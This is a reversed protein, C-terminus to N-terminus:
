KQYNLRWRFGITRPESPAAVGGGVTLPYVKDEINKAFIQIDWAKTKPAFSISLDTKTFSPVFYRLGSSQNSLYYNDSYRSFFSLSLQGTEIPILKEYGLSFVLPPTRDLALGSWDNIGNPSYNGYRADLLALAFKLKDYSSIRLDGNLEFGKIIAKAANTTTYFPGGFRDYTLGTLQLNKYDYVFGIAELFLRNNFARKKLGLEYANLTEPKYFLLNDDAPTDCNVGLHSTGAMCGDNFSGAKYGTSVSAYAFTNADIDFDAGIRWSVNDYEARAANLVRFDGNAPNFVYEQQFSTFGLRSKEDKSYRVGAVLRINPRISYSTQAFAALNESKMPDQPFSFYPPLFIIELDRLTFQVKSNEAFYYLGAQNRFKGGEKNTIRLEHSNQTYDADQIFRSGYFGSLIINGLENREFYRRSAIYTVDAFGLNYNVEAAVGWTHNDSDYEQLTNIGGNAPIFSLTRKAKSSSKFYIPNNASPDIYFNRADIDANVSDIKSYDARLLISLDENADFLASLRFSYDDRNNSMEYGTGQGNIIFADRKNYNAAARLKIKDSIPLNVFGGISKANYDGFMGNLGYYFSDTPKKSKINIVGATTNRGYLTGQPGRLVEIQEIDFFSVNQAESRAIYVGDLMFAASPDGKETTDTSTVGRISIRTATGNADMQLNPIIQTLSSASEYGSKRVEEASLASVAIPTKSIKSAYRNATVVVEEATQPANQAFVGNTQALLAFGLSFYIHNQYKKM